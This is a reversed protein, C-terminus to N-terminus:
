IGIQHSVAAMLMLLTWAQIMRQTSTVECPVADAAVAAAATLTVM